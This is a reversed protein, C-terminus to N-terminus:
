SHAMTVATYVATVPSRHGYYRCVETVLFSTSICVKYMYLTLQLLVDPCMCVSATSVACM